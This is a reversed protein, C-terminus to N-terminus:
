QLILIKIWRQYQRLRINLKKIADQKAEDFSEKWGDHLMQEHAIKLAEAKTDFEGILIGNAEGIWTEHYQFAKPEGTFFFAVFPKQRGVENPYQRNRKIRQCEGYYM